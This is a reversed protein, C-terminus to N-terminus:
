YVLFRDARISVGSPHWETRSETVVEGQLGSLIVLRYLKKQENRGAPEERPCLWPCPDPRFYSVRAM